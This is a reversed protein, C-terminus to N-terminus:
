GLPWREFSMKVFLEWVSSLALLKLLGTIWNVNPPWLALFLAFSAGPEMREELLDREVFINGQM